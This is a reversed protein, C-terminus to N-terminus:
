RRRGRHVRFQRWPTKDGRRYTSFPRLTALEPVTALSRALRGLLYLVCPM